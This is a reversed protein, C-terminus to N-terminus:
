PSRVDGFDGRIERIHAEREEARKRMEERWRARIIPPCELAWTKLKTSVNMYGPARKSEFKCMGSHTAEIGFYSVDPLLPSASAQDVVFAKTGKFDTKSSEHVMCIKYRQYIDLFHLNINALTENGTKLTKILVSESEMAKKPILASVM